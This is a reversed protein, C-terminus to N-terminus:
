GHPHASGINQLARASAPAHSHRLSGVDVIAMKRMTWLAAGSPMVPCQARPIGRLARRPRRRECSRGEPTCGHMPRSRPAAPVRSPHQDYWTSSRVAAWASSAPQICIESLPQDAIRPASRPRHSSDMAPDWAEQIWFSRYMTSGPVATGYQVSKCCFQSFPGYRV